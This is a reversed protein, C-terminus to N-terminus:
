HPMASDPLNIGDLKVAIGRHQAEITFDLIADKIDEAMYRCLTGDIEVQAGDPINAFTKVLGGRNLFSMEESLRITFRKKGRYESESMTHAVKFTRFLIIVLTVALGIGVGTLLDTAVVAALTALFPVYEEPGRAMISRYLKLDNLKIGVFILVVALASLPIMNLAVPIMAVAILLLLGHFVASRKSQAGANMNATSRVIVQTCPLGGALGCVVNGVGQAFLERNPPSIRRKPDLKDTAELSLLTELSAVAAITLAIVWVKANGIQSFDPLTLHVLLEKPNDTVPVKVYQSAQDLTLASIERFFAALAIGALVVILSPQLLAGFRTKSARLKPILIYLAAGSLAILLTGPHIRKLAEAFGGQFLNQVGAIGLAHPLQKIIIIVGIASLMGKIVSSPFFYSLTGLRLIGALIQICGAILTALLFPQWGLAAIGGFVIVTLGAAPGSVGLASGSLAGIIVGGVVGSVIGAFLPAGSALAIGLCLPLAVLFVVFSATLDPLLSRTMAQNQPM